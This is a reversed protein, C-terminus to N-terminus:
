GKQAKDEANEQKPNKIWLSSCIVTTIWDITEMDLKGNYGNLKRPKDHDPSQLLFASFKPCQLNIKKLTILGYNKYAM